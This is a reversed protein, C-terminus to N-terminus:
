LGNKQKLPGHLIDSFLHGDLCSLVKPQQSLFTNGDTLGDINKNCRKANFMSELKKVIVPIKFRHFFDKTKLYFVLAAGAHDSGIALQIFKFVLLSRM